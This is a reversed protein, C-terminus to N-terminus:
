PEAQVLRDTNLYGDQHLYLAGDSPQDVRDNPAGVVVDGDDDGLFNGAAVAHGYWGDGDQPDLSSPNTALWQVMGINQPQGFFQSVQGQIQGGVTVRPAGVILDDHADGNIRGVALSVGFRDGPTPSGSFRALVDGSSLANGNSYFVFVRGEDRNEGPAGVALDGHGDDDFDGVALSWGFDDNLEDWTWQTLSGQSVPGSATGLFSFVRGSRHTVVDNFSGVFLEECSGCAGDLVPGAALSAGFREQEHKAGSQQLTTMGSLGTSTGGAVFVVGSRPQAGWAEGPAGIAVDDHGDGDFDGAALAWGFRDGKENTGLGLKEQDYWDDTDFIAGGDDSGWYLFIAGSREDGAPGEGPASVVLDDVGDDDFDGVAAAWGFRDFREIAGIQNLQACPDLGSLGGCYVYVGGASITTDSGYSEFPAGVVLDDWGDGNFDGVALTRGFHDYYGNTALFASSLPATPTATFGPEPQPRPLDPREEARVRSTADEYGARAVPEDLEQWILDIGPELASPQQDAAGTSGPDLDEDPDTGTCGPLLSALLTLIAITRLDNM